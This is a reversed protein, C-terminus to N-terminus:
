RGLATLMPRYWLRDYDGVMRAATVRPGLTLWNHRMRAIWAASPRGVGDAHFLAAIEELVTLAHAAEDGDRSWDDVHDSTAIDWGNRGDSMEAWWGDRISCNLAGNLAAKEGSTGSAERPRIPNNLWVDCGAYMARAVEIDYDPLFTFRGNAAPSSGFEMIASILGKGGEDAPHAKGAFVFHVPRAPHHLLASLREPHRLLLTARKYTAFRRAFGIVLSDPHLQGGARAVLDTLAARESNRVRSVEGATIGDVRAWASPDGLDWGDGLREDFIEQLEPNVWTRAHVGNTVSGIRDGGPFDAFLQRSVEGHLQSVGNARDAVRLCLAAMNFVAAGGPEAGLALLDDLPLNGDAACRELYPTILGHDFRDIGAPVPTHTTFLVHPRVAEIAAALDLSGARRAGGILELTLFGAHGENSHHVGPNWGFAEVARVGGIGLVLEQELRHRQDGGYLRDTIQRDADSNAEVDTDLLLLTIRGVAMKWVKAVVTRGAIPVEVTFGTDDLGLDEAQYTDIREGQWNGNMEQRFFGHRYFLGVAGLSTGLDSASKLHDGALIGLGGSYQPVLASIGFEPSYYVVDPHTIRTAEVANLVGIQAELAAVLDHDEALSACQDDSLERVAIVPHQGPAATPLQDFLASTRYDWTWLYNSALQELETRLAIPDM